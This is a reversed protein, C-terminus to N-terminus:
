LSFRISLNHTGNWPNTSRYGYDIGFRTDNDKSFPIEFSVGASLGSYVNNIVEDATSGLDYRYGARLMFIESLAYELGGGIADRSFSNSTFNGTVTIRHKVNILFDYSAGINLVSPLEFRSARQDYSLDYSIVGDPNQQRFSLGEGGFSMPTGVNRLSIGFKFNDQPGTVYQVGADLAFGQASLDATSESILRFTFGVSIKNDFIHAYSVGIHFFNPSFTAGTGEPQDTTTVAIDGFDMAMLSVGLAGNDGMKQALGVANMNVGSGELYKAHSIALQMRKIRVLGAVNLRMAEVGSIYSTTLSHLGASRAWPNLLLENAGAEGQRDPNGGFLSICFVLLFFLIGSTRKKM